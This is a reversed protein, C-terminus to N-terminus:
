YPMDGIGIINALTTLASISAGRKWLDTRQAETSVLPTTHAFTWLNQHVKTSDVADVFPLILRGTTKRVTATEKFFLSLRSQLALNSSTRDIYTAEQGGIVRFPYYTVDVYATGNWTSVTLNAAAGM